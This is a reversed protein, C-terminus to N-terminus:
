HSRFHGPVEVERGRIVSKFPHVYQSGRRTVYYAPVKITKGNRHVTYGSIRKMGRADTRYHGKVNVIKGDKRTYRTPEVWFTTTKSTAQITDTVPEAYVGNTETSADTHENMLHRLGVDNAVVKASNRMLYLGTAGALVLVTILGKM